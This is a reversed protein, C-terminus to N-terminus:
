TTGFATQLANCLLLFAMCQLVGTAAAQMAYHELHLTVLCRKKKRWPECACFSYFTHEERDVSTLSSPSCSERSLYRWNQLPSFAPYFKREHTLVTVRKTHSYLEVMCPVRAVFSVHLQEDYCKNNGDSPLTILLM